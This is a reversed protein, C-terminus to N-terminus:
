LDALRFLPWVIRNYNGFWCSTARPLDLLSLNELHVLKARKEFAKEFLVFVTASFERFEEFSFANKAILSAGM